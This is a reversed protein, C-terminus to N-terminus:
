KCCAQDKRCRLNDCACRGPGAIVVALAMAVLALNYEFGNGNDPTMSLFFGHQGHVTIIAGMMIIGIGAAAWRSLCGAILGIGGLFEGLCVAYVLPVPLGMGSMMQVTATLGHGGFWGMVKQGGHMFFIIGLTIRVITLAYAKWQCGCGM